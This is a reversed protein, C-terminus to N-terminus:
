RPGLGSGAPGEFRSGTLGALGDPGAVRAGDLRAGAAADAQVTADVSRVVDAGLGTLCRGVGEWARLVTEEADRYAREFAAGIDDRGWPRQASAAAIDGGIRARRATVAEGALALDAGARRARGPDLWLHGGGVGGVGTM